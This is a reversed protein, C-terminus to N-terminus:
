VVGKFFLGLEERERDTLFYKLKRHLLFGPTKGLAKLEGIPEEGPAFGKLDCEFLPVIAPLSEEARRVEVVDTIRRHGGLQSLYVILEVAAVKGARATLDKYSGDPYAALMDSLRQPVEEPSEAHVTSMSGPHGINMAQLTYYTTKPCRSESVLVRTPKMRLAKEFILDIPVEGVGEANARRPEFVKVVPTPLWPRSPDPQGVKSEAPDEVFVLNEKPGVCLMLANLFTNKGSGMGGAAYINLRAKVFLKFMKVLNEPFLKREALEELTFLRSFKRITVSTGRVSPQPITIVVRSGDPLRCDEIPQFEDVKRGVSAAMREATRRLHEESLFNKQWEKVEGNEEYTILDYRHIWIDTVDPNSMLENIPGYGYMDRILLELAENVHNPAARNKIIERFLGKAASQEGDKFIDPRERWARVFFEARVEDLVKESLLPNTRTAAGFRTEYLSM